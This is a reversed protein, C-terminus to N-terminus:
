FGSRFVKSERVATEREISFPILLYRKSKDREGLFLDFHSDRGQGFLRLDHVITATEDTDSLTLIVLNLDSYYFEENAKGRKTRQCLSISIWSPDPVSLEILDMPVAMGEPLVCELNLVQHHAHTFCVDVQMFRQLFDHYSIWFVGGQDGSGAEEGNLRKRLSASWESSNVGFKGKWEVKGWPNRLKILRLMGHETVGFEESDDLKRKRGGGFYDHLTAVRGLVLGEEISEEVVQLLSYAHGGVLGDGSLPCVAGMLFGQSQFSMLRTWFLESDFGVGGFCISECPFGTLDFLAEAIQGGSIAKYSSHAKAYAKELVPVWINGNVSKAFYLHPGSTNAVTSKKIQAPPMIPFLSDVCYERWKGDIFFRATFFGKGKGTQRPLVRHLLGPNEAIVALASIFWCDGVRGQMFFSCSTTMPSPCAFFKRGHNKNEKSVTKLRAPKNCACKPASPTSSHTATDVPTKIGDIASADALFDEDKWMGRLPVEPAASPPDSEADPSDSFVWDNSTGLSPICLGSSRAGFSGSIKPSCGSPFAESERPLLEAQLEPPLADWVSPDVGPPRLKTEQSLPNAAALEAQIDTPLSIWDEWSIDSPKSFAM